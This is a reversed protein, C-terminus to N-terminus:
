YMVKTSKRVNRIGRGSKWFIGRFSVVGFGICVRYRVYPLVVTCIRHWLVGSHVVFAIKANVGDSLTLGLTVCEGMCLSKNIGMRPNREDRRPPSFHRLSPSQQSSTPHSSLPSTHWGLMHYLCGCVRVSVYTRFNALKM